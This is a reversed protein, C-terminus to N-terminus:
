AVRHLRLKEPKKKAFVERGSTSFKCLQNEAIINTPNPKNTPNTDQSVM